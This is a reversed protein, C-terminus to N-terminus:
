NKDLRRVIFKYNQAVSFSVKREPLDHSNKCNSTHYLHGYMAQLFM